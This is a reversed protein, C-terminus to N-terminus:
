AAVISACRCTYSCCNRFIASSAAARAYSAPKTAAEGGETCAFGATTDGGMPAVARGPAAGNGLSMEDAGVGTTPKGDSGIEGIAAGTTGGNGGNGTNGETGLGDGNAGGDGAEM